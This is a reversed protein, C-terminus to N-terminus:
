HKKATDRMPPLQPLYEPILMGLDSPYQRRQWVVDRLRM